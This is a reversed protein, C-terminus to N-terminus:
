GDHHRERATRGRELGLLNARRREGVHQGCARACLRVRQGRHRGVEVDRQSMGYYDSDKTLLRFTVGDPRVDIDPKHAEVGPLNAVAAVLEVSKALSSTPFYACAGDGIVRWDETGGASHFDKPSIYDSM